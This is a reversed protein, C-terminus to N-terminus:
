VRLVEYELDVFHVEGTCSRWPFPTELSEVSPVVADCHLWYDDKRLLWDEYLVCVDADKDWSQILHRLVRTRWELPPFNRFYLIVNLMVM